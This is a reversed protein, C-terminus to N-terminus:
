KILIKILQLVAKCIVYRTIVYIYFWKEGIKILVMKDDLSPKVETLDMM